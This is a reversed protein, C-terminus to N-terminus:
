SCIGVLSLLQAEAKEKITKISAAFKKSEASTKEEYCKKIEAILTQQLTLKSSSLKEETQTLATEAANKQSEAQTMDKELQKKKAEQAKRIGPYENVERECRKVEEELSSLNRCAEVLEKQTREREKYKEATKGIEEMLTKRDTDQSFDELATKIDERKKQIQKRSARINNLISDIEDEIAKLRVKSSSDDPSNKILQEQEGGLTVRRTNLIVIEAEITAIEGEHGKVTQSTKNKEKLEEELDRLAEQKKHHEKQLHELEKPIGELEIKKAKKENLSDKILPLRKEKEGADSEWKQCAKLHEEQERRKKALAEEAQELKHKHENIATELDREQIQARQPVNRLNAEYEKEQHQMTSVHQDSELKIQALTQNRLKLRNDKILEFDIIMKLVPEKSLDDQYLFAPGNERIFSSVLQTLQVDTKAMLGKELLFKGHCQMLSMLQEPRLAEIRLKFDYEAFDLIGELFLLQYSDLVEEVPLSKIEELAKSKANKGAFELIQKRIATDLSLIVRFSMEGWSQSLRVVIERDEIELVRIEDKYNGQNALVSSPLGLFKEKLTKRVQPDTVESIVRKGNRNQIETFTFHSLHSWEQKLVAQEVQAQAGFRAIDEKFRNQTEILGLNLQLVLKLFHPFHSILHIAEEGNKKVFENYSWAAAERDAIYREPSYETFQLSFKKLAEAHKERLELIGIKTSWVYITFLWAYIPYESPTIESFTKVSYKQCVAEVSSVQLGKVRTQFNRIANQEERTFIKSNLVESSLMLNKPTSPHYISYFYKKKILQRTEEALQFDFISSWHVSLFREFPQNHLFYRAWENLEQNSIVNEDPYTLRINALALKEINGRVEERLKLLHSAKDFYRFVLGIVASVVTLLGGVMLLHTKRLSLCIVVGTGAVCAACLFINGYTRYTKFVQENSAIALRNWQTLPKAFTAIAGETLAPLIKQSTMISLHAM